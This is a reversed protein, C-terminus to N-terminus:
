SPSPASAQALRRLRSHSTRRPVPVRRSTAHLRRPAGDRRLTHVDSTADGAVARTLKCPHKGTSYRSDIFRKLVKPRGEHAISIGIENRVRGGVLTKVVSGDGGRVHFTVQAPVTARALSHSPASATAPAKPPPAPPPLQPQQAACTAMTSDRLKGSAPPGTVANVSGPKRAGM